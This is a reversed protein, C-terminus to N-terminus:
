MVLLFYSLFYNNSSLELIAVLSYQKREFIFRMISMIASLFAISFQLENPKKSSKAFQLKNPEMTRKSGGAKTETQNGQKTTIRAAKTEGKTIDGNSDTVTTNGDFKTINHNGLHTTVGAFNTTANSVIELNCQELDHCLEIELTYIFMTYNIVHNKKECGLSDKHKCQNCQDKKCFCVMENHELNNKKNLLDMCYNAQGKDGLNRCVICGTDTINYFAKLKIDEKDACGRVTLNLTIM